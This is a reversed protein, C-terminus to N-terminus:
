RAYRGVAGEETGLKEGLIERMGKLERDLLERLVSNVVELEGKEVAPYTSAWRRMFGRTEEDEKGETRRETQYDVYEDETVTEVRVPNDGWGLVGTILRALEEFSVVEKGSLLVTEGRWKMGDGDALIRATGEALDDTAVWAVGRDGKVPVKIVREKEGEIKEKDFFGFYLPFSEGYIGEKIITFEMGSEGCVHKLYASTEIHAGMVAATSDGAFALSTYYIHRVGVDRAADIANKHASVRIEHAISPYSVLLLKEAGSFSQRLSAPSTYDGRRVSVQKQYALSQLAPPLSSPNYLSLILATPPYCLTHLLHHLIRSGLKGTTGTLCITPHPSSM